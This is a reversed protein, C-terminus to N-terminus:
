RSEGITESPRPLNFFWDSAWTPLFRTGKWSPANMGWCGFHNKSAERSHLIEGRPETRCERDVWVESPRWIQSFFTAGQM